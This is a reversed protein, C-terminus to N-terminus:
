GMRTILWAATLGALLGGIGQPAVLLGLTAPPVQLGQEMVPFMSVNVIGTAGIAIAIAIALLLTLRGLGPPAALHRFGASLEHWYSGREEATEPAGETLRVSQLLLAAATFCVVTIVIVPVPGWIAYLGTGILPSALRLAQDLASM